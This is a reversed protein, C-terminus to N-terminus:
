GCLKRMAAELPGRRFRSMWLYGFVSSAIIFIVSCGLSQLPQLTGIWGLSEALGMGVIIHAFYLTLTMRGTKEFGHRLKSAPYSCLAACAGIIATALAASTILYSPVAPVPGTGFLVPLEPDIAQTVNALVFSTIMAVTFVAFGFGILKFQVTRSSLDLKALWMGYLFFSLWPVVPHWGNFFLNRIFGSPSWFGSYDYTEWNWGADFDLTLLLILSLVILTLISLWIWVGGSRIFFLAFLFYLAYYHIIDAPFILMNLLGIGLLFAARKLTVRMVSKVPQRRASLEFGIGALIVFLAAARGVLLSAFHFSDHTQNPGSLVIDFNVIVMGILALYRALDLGNIRAM